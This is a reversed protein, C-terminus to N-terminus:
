NFGQNHKIIQEPLKGIMDQYKKFKIKKRYKSTISSIKDEVLWQLNHTAFYSFRMPILFSNIRTNGTLISSGEIQKITLELTKGMHLVGSCLIIEQCFINDYVGARHLSDEEKCWGILIFPEDEVGIAHPNEWMFAWNYNRVPRVDQNKTFAKPPATLIDWLTTAEPSPRRYNRDKQNVRRQIHGLPKTRFTKVRPLKGVKPNIM